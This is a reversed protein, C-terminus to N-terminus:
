FLKFGKPLPVIRNLGLKRGLKTAVAGGIILMAGKAEAPNWTKQTYDYGTMRYLTQQAVGFPTLAGQNYAEYAGM